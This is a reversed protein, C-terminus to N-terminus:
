AVLCYLLRESKREEVNNVEGLRGNGAKNGFHALIESKRPERM